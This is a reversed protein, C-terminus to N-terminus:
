ESCLWSDRINRRANVSPIVRSTEFDPRQKANRLLQPLTPHFTQEPNEFERRILLAHHEEDHQNQECNCEDGVLPATM